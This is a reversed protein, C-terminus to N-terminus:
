PNMAAYRSPLKLDKRLCHQITRVSVNGLELAMVEKIEKATMM